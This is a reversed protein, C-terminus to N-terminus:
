SYDKRYCQQGERERERQQTDDAEMDHLGGDSDDLSEDELLCGSTRKSGQLNLCSFSSFYRKQKTKLTIETTNKKELYFLGRTGHDDTYHDDDLRRSM